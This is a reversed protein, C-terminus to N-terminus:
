LEAELEAQSAEVLEVIVRSVSPRGGHKNAREVAVRRLLHLTSTPISIATTTTTNTAPTVTKRRRDLEAANDQGTKVAGPASLPKRKAAM